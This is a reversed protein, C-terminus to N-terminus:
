TAGTSLSELAGIAAALRERTARALFLRWCREGEGISETESIRLRPFDYSEALAGAYVLDSDDEIHSAHEQGPYDKLREVSAGRSDSNSDPNEDAPPQLSPQIESEVSTEVPPESEASTEDDSDPQVTSDRETDDNCVEGLASPLPLSQEEPELPDGPVLQSPQGKRTELNRILGLQIARRVRHYVTDKDLKLEDCLAKQMLPKDHYIRVLAEVTERVSRSIGGSAAATFVDILLSRALEYDRIDAIIRGRNDVSRQRQHLLAVASIVTLLQRFDRRMRVFKVPALEALRRAYPIYVSHVGGSELWDQLALFGSLDFNATDGNVAAAHALLVARTQDPTDSVSLTLMRTNMQEPLAKTSTTILGTPGQREIRRTTFKGTADKEVVDYTMASDTVLSRVASAAPGDEPISDAEAVVVIKNKFSTESYILARASGAKEMFYADEPVLELAADVARNKGASSPAVVALNLPRALFRSVLGIFVILPPKLDGAFGRARIAEGVRDLLNPADLL